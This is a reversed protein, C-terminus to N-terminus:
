APKAELEAPQVPVVAATELVQPEVPEQAQLVAEVTEAAFEQRQEDEYAQV